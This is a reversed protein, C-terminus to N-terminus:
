ACDPCLDAGLMTYVWGVPAPDDWGLVATSGCTGKLSDSARDVPGECTYTISRSM